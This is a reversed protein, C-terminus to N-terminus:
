IQFVLKALKGNVAKPGHGVWELPSYYFINFLYMCKVLM